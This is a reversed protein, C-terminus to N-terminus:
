ANGAALKRYDVCGAQLLVALIEPLGARTCCVRLRGAAPPADPCEGASITGSFCRLLGLLTAREEASGPFHASLRYSDADAITDCM